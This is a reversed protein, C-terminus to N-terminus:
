SFAKAIAEALGTPNEWAMSHGARAVVLSNVGTPALREVDDYPLSSEGVIITRPVALASLIGQWTPDSGAVLSCATRHVAYSASQALSAAWIDNGNDRSASVLEDHGFRVYYSESMAAISRSFVGGGPALNPEGVVLSRLRGTLLAAAEIAVAGGMSHGFLDFEALGLAEALAVVSRAHDEITYGFGRPRDSFGSGLLDVLLMRRGQLAYNAAVAPYDCSSACGIGHIFLLTPGDGALDHYRLRADVASLTFSKM